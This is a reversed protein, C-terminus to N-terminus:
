ELLELDLADIAADLLPDRKRLAALTTTKLTETTLRAADTPVLTTRSGRLAVRSIGPLQQRIAALLDAANSELGSQASSDDVQLTLLGGASVASPLAQQLFAGLFRKERTIATIVGDWRDIIENIDTTTPREAVALAIDRHPV